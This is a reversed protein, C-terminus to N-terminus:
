LGGDVRLTQGTIYSAKDSALFAIANAVEEPRATRKFSTRGILEEWYEPDAHKAMDTDVMGPAVTNVRINLDALERALTKVAHVVAAKSGGYAINGAEAQLGAVSSVFVVSGKKGRSMLRVIMQTFLLPAIYNCELMRRLNQEPMRTFGDYRAEGANNVLIDVPKKASQIQKVAQKMQASDILDFYVPEIWVGYQEALGAMDAEFVADERRACAWINAGNEAFVQVTARGIGRRAGTIIANKGKLM